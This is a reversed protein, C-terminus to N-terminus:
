VVVFAVRFCLFHLLCDEKKKKKKKKTEKKTEDNSLSLSFFTKVAGFKEGQERKGRAGM